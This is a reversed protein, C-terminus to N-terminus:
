PRPKKVYYIKHLLFGRSLLGHHPTIPPESPGKAILLEDLISSRRDGQHRPPTQVIGGGDGRCGHGRVTGNGHSLRNRLRKRGKRDPYHGASEARV